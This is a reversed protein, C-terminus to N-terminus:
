FKVNLGVLLTKPTVYGSSGSSTELEPRNLKSKTLYGLNKGTVSIEVGSLKAKECLSQPLSYALTIERFSLYDGDYVFLSSPRAYNRSGLQDAWRYEPFQANINEPTWTDKSESVSNYTGQAMAMFWPLQSDMQKFGLAYDFRANLRLGKYSVTSSFGGFWKPRLNGVKVKDFNDIKGDKNVDRWIVDGPKIPMASGKSELEDWAAPGYLVRNNSGFWGTSEDVRNNAIERVHDWDKYIGQAEFAYLDGIRQGEQYGGVWVLEGSGPDYVQYASQRNRELGNDPLSEVINVNHAFNASIDWALDKKRLVKFSMDIEIGRNRLEGNNSKISNIGSSSPLPINAYKDLTLRNYYTINTNVKNEFFSVDVGAEFTKSREWKLNPNAINGLLYGVQNNYTTNGYSGQLTYAGIGSVNGNLGYSARLKLFSIIHSYAEMWGEKNVIWGASVGPFFGWQNDGLLKSYGDRRFTFSLLYKDEYDYNVRGFYSKIRQRVHSSNINRKGEDKTTLGLDRFDDTPAGSGSASFGKYYSDYFEYGALFNANHKAISFDYKLVANYTQRLTREYEASTSRTTSMRGPGSQYDQNFSEYFGQDFMWHGKVDLTLDKLLTLTFAQGMNFKNTNYDRHWKSQNVAPNGDGTSKGLILEGDPNYTRMTPPYSLMRGFYNGVSTNIIPRWEANNFQFSSSSKLWERIKYDGNFVFTLRKYWNGIALGDSDHYGISSYYNGKDNGGTFSINYDKTMAPDNFAHKEMDFEEYIIEKGTVPDTMKQWGEDLLFEVEPTLFMTSWYARSNKNGDLANGEGDFYLNGTGFPQAADLAGLGVYGAWSGDERQYMQAANQYAKRVYYLYDHGNMFEYSNNLYNWGYKTDVTVQTRGEKGRKTQVLIVGNNARAGYLATAGADKLVEMSEIDQPNIDSLSSRVQGDVIYLPSGSGNWETGGRLVIVPTAGPDGSTTTVKLGSVVGTLAQAPNGHAGTKLTSEKVSAISNTLKSRKQTGGYGTVVVEDLKAVDEKLTINIEAEEGVTVLEQKFGIFSFVLVDGKNVVLNYYGDFDTITGTTTGDILVSVGPLPAGSDDVVRGKVSNQAWLSISLFWSLLLVMTWRKKVQNKQM